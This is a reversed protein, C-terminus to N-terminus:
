QHQVVVCTFHEDGLVRTHHVKGRTDAMRWVDGPEIERVEGDSATVAVSGTLCIRSQDIPTPHVPEDWGARLRLFLMKTAPAPESIQIDQAPPAFTRSTLTVPVSDRHSEGQTDATLTQVIM